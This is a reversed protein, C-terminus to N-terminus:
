QQKQICVSVPSPPSCLAFFISFSLLLDLIISSSFLLALAGKLIRQQRALEQMGHGSEYVAKWNTLDDVENSLLNKEAELERYKAADESTRETLSTMKGEVTRLKEREAVVKDATRQEIVKDDDSLREALQDRDNIAGELKQGMERLLLLTEEHEAKMEEIERQKEGVLTSDKLVANEARLAKVDAKHALLESTLRDTKQVHEAHITEV